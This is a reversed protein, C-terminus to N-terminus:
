RRLLQIHKSFESAHGSLEKDNFAITSKTWRRQDNRDKVKKAQM